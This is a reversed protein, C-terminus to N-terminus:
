SAYKGSCSVCIHHSTSESLAPSSWNASIPNPLAVAAAATAICTGLIFFYLCLFIVALLFVDKDTKLHVFAFERADQPLKTKQELFNQQRVVTASSVSPVAPLRQLPLEPTKRCRSAPPRLISSFTQNAKLHVRSPVARRRLLLSRSPHHVLNYPGTARECANAIFLESGGELEVIEMREGQVDQGM